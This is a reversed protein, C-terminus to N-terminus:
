SLTKNRLYVNLSQNISSPDHIRRTLLPTNAVAYVDFVKAVRRTLETKDQWAQPDWDVFVHKVRDLYHGAGQLVLPEAGEADVKLVDIEEVGVKPLFDELAVSKVELVQDSRRYVISHRGRNGPSIYLKKTGEEDAVCAQFPKAWWFGNAAISRELFSFNLPEPEFSVVLGAPGTRSAGLLTYWGINAGVDVVVMGRKVLTKFLLTTALEWVGSVGIRPSIVSDEPNLLIKFGFAERAESPRGRWNEQCIKTLRDAVSEGRLRAAVLEPFEWYVKAARALYELGAGM